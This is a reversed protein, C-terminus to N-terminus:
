LLLMGMGCVAAVGYMVVFTVGSEVMGKAGTNNPIVTSASAAGSSVLSTTSTSVAAASGSAASTASRLSSTAGAIVAGTTGTASASTIGASSSPKASGNNSSATGSSSTAVAVGGAALKEMGATITVPFFTIDDYSDLDSTAAVYDVGRIQATWISTGPDNAEAGGAVQTCLATSAVTAVDCHASLSFDTPEALYVDYASTAAATGLTITLGPGFGCDSDDDYSDDDNSDDDTSSPVTGTTTTSPNSAPTCTVFLTEGGKSDSAIVSALYNFSTDSDGAGFLLM